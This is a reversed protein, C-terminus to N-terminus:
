NISKVIPCTKRAVIWYGGITKQILRTNEGYYDRLAELNHFSESIERRSNLVKYPEEAGTIYTVMRFTDEFRFADGVKLKRGQSGSVITPRM